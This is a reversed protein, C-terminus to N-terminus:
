VEPGGRCAIWVYVARENCSVAHWSTWDACYRSCLLSKNGAPSLADSGWAAHDADPLYTPRRTSRLTTSGLGVDAGASDAAAETVGTGGTAGGSRQPIAPANALPAVGIHVGKHLMKAPCGNSRQGLREQCRSARM